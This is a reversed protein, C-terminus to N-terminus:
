HKGVTNNKRFARKFTLQNQNPYVLRLAREHIVNIIHEMVRSHFMLILPCYSVQSMIFDNAILKGQSINMYKFMEIVAHLKKGAM